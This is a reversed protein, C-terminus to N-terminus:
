SAIIGDGDQVLKACEDASHLKQQYMEQWRYAM